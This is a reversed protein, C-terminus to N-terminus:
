KGNYRRRIIRTRRTASSRATSYKRTEMIQGQSNVMGGNSFAPILTFQYTASAIADSIDDHMGPAHGVKGSKPDQQLYQLEEVLEENPPLAIRNSYILDKLYYYSQPTKRCSFQNVRFGANAIKQQSEKSQHQDFSFLVINFGWLVSLEMAFNRIDEIMVELGGTPNISIAMEVEYNAQAEIHGGVVEKAENGLYKVLAIGCRDGKGTKAGTAIDIHLIRPAHKDKPLNEPIWEPMGDLALDFNQLPRKNKSGRTFVLREYSKYKQICDTIKDSDRIFVEMISAPRGAIDRQATDPDLIFQDRHEIPVSLVEGGTPYEGDEYEKTTLIRGQYDRTTLLWYFTQKSPYWEEPVLEWRAKRSIYILKRSEEPLKDFNDIRRSTYDNHHNSSSVTFVGGFKPGKMGMFRGKYRDIVESMLEGAQDYVGAGEATTTRVSKNIYKMANVEEVSVGMLDNGMYAERDAPFWTFVINQDEIELATKIKDKNYAVYKKTYPMSTFMGIVPKLVNLKATSPRASSCGFVIPKDKSLGFYEQPNHFCTLQYIAYCLAINARFTKGTSTSGTFIVEIPHTEGIWVDPCIEELEEIVKPWFTRGQGGLYEPNTIFERITVPIRKLGDLAEIYRYNDNDIAERVANTLIKYERMLGQQKYIEAKKSLADLIKAKKIM